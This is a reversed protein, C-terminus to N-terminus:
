GHGAERRRVCDALAGRLRSLAQVIARYSKGQRQAIGEPSLGERYRLKLIERGPEPLKQM